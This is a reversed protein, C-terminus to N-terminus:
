VFNHMKGGDFGYLKKRKVLACKQKIILGESFRLKKIIEKVFENKTREEWDSPVLVYFFPNMDEVFIACSEGMENLGFMQIVMKKGGIAITNEDYINFDLLRISVANDEVEKSQQPQQEQIPKPKIIIKKKKKDDTTQASTSM